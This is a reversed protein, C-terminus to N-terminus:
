AFPRAPIAVSFIKFECAPLVIGVAQFFLRSMEINRIITYYIKVTTYFNLSAREKFTQQLVDCTTFKEFPFSSNPQSYSAQVVSVCKM